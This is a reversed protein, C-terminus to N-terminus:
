PKPADDDLYGLGKLLEQQEATLQRQHPHSPMKCRALTEFYRDLEAGLKAALEPQDRILDRTEMPDASLDYLERRGDSGWILKHAGIVLTRLRRQFSRPDWGPYQPLIQAIGISTMAPDEAFRVRDQRPSLLSVAQSRLDPPAAVGTLELLTPFLDFSMVPSPDRGPALRGPALIILPVHLLTQYVSYQHDLMHHEGLQDGHDATLIVITDDLHGSERLAKLLDRLLEDLELLTADYTAATLMLDDDSYERLGFTFEWMRSWSRDVRYSRIVDAPPLLQNRFRRPPIYPRHAEMYNLFIFFPQGKDSAELWQLTATKAIEGAAKINEPALTARGERAAALIQPLETSHDELPVKARVLRLAQEAWQPSWPHEEQDFGQAFNGAPHAAIHPNASYLFTRYGAGKLLEAITIYSDDLRANDNHTCHESPYLGTFMSAHAPLTYGATSLADEFVRADKSWETLFPTTPRSHGYLGLHDARVTDWVIWLVNPRASLPRAARERSDSGPCGTLLLAAALAAAGIGEAFNGSRARM